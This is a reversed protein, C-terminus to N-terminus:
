FSEVHMTPSTTKKYHTGYIVLFGKICYQAKHCVPVGKENCKLNFILKGKMVKWGKPVDSRHMLKFVKLEKLSKMEDEVGAIWQAVDPRALAEKLSQPDAPNETNIPTNDMAAMCEAILQDVEDDGTSKMQKHM